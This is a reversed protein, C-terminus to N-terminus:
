KSTDTLLASALVILGFLGISVLTVPWFKIAAMGIFFWTTIYIAYVICSWIKDM